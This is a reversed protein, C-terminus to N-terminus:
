GAFGLGGEEERELSRKPREEGGGAGTEGGLDVTAEGCCSILEAKLRELGEKCGLGTVDGL